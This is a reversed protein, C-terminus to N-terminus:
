KKKSDLIVCTNDKFYVSHGKLGTRLEVAFIWFICAQFVTAIAAPCALSAILQAPKQTQRM